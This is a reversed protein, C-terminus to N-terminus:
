EAKRIEMEDQVDTLIEELGDNIERDALDRDEQTYPQTRPIYNDPGGSDDDDDDDSDDESTEASDTGNPPNGFPPPPPPMQPGPPPPGGPGGGNGAPGQQGGGGGNGVGVAAGMMGIGATLAPVNVVATAGVAQLMSFVGGTSAGYVVSQIGAAISGAAVGGAQWGLANIAMIGVPPAALFVGGAVLAGAIANRPFNSNPGGPPPQAM